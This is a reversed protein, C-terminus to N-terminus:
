RMKCIRRIEWPCYTTMETAKKLPKGILRVKWLPKSDRLPITEFTKRGPFKRRRRRRITAIGNKWSMWRPEWNIPFPFVPESTWQCHWENFVVLDTRYPGALRRRRYHHKRRSHMPLPLFPHPVVVRQTMKMFSPVKRILHNEAMPGHRAKSVLRFRNERRILRFISCERHIDRPLLLFPHHHNQHRHHHFNNPSPELHNEPICWPHHVGAGLPRPWKVRHLHSQPSNRHNRIQFCIQPFYMRRVGVWHHHHREVRGTWKLPVLIPHSMRAVVVAVAM